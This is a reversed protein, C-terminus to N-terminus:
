ITAEAVSPQGYSSAISNWLNAFSAKAQTALPDTRQAAIYNSDSNSDGSCSGINDGAWQAYSDDSDISYNLGAILDSKMEQGNPLLSVDMGQLQNVIIRRSTAAQNFAGQDASPNGCNVVDTAAARVAQRASISQQILTALSQAQGTATQLAATSPPTSPPVSTDATVSTTSSPETVYVTAHHSRILVIALVAAIVIAASAVLILPTRSRSASSGSAGAPLGTPVVMPLSTPSTGGMPGGTAAGVVATRAVITTASPGGEPATIPVAGASTAGCATCFATTGGNVTECAGCRWGPGAPETSGMTMRLRAAGCSVCYADNPQNSVNCSACNWGSVAVGLQNSWDAGTTTQVAVIAAEDSM